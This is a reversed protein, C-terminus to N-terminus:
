FGIHTIASPAASHGRRAVIPALGIIADERKGVPRHGDLGQSSPRSSYRGLFKEAASMKARPVRVVTPVAVWLPGVEQLKSPTPVTALLSGGMTMAVLLGRCLMGRNDCLASQGLTGESRAGALQGDGTDFLRM